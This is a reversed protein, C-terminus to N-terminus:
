MFMKVIRAIASLITVIRMVLDLTMRGEPTSTNEGHAGGEKRIAPCSSAAHLWRRAQVEEPIM